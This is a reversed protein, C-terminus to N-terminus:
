RNFRGSGDPFCSRERRDIITEDDFWRLEMVFSTFEWLLGVSTLKTSQDDIMALSFIFLGLYVCKISGQM